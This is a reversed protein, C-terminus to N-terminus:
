RLDRLTEQLAPILADYSPPRREANPAQMWDLLKAVSPPISRGYTSRTSPAGDRPGRLAEEMTIGLAYIDARFDVEDGGLQEPAMYGRTGVVARRELHWPSARGSQAHAMGYDVIRASGDRAMLVNGPKIDRHILGQEHGARLGSAVDLGLRLVEAPSLAGGTALRRALSVGAVLEMVIYSLEETHTVDLVRVVNPHNIRAALRAEEVLLAGVVRGERLLEPKLLKLAVVRDLLLHTARYVVAFGGTGVVEALRYKDLVTGPAFDLDKRAGESPRSPRPKTVLPDRPLAAFCDGPLEATLKPASPSTASPARAAFYPTLDLEAKV